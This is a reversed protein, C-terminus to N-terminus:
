VLEMWGGWFGGMVVVVSRGILRDVWLDVGLGVGSGEDVWGELLVVGGDARPTWFVLSLGCGCGARPQRDLFPICHLPTPPATACGHAGLSCAVRHQVRKPVTQERRSM